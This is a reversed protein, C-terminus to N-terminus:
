SSVPETLSQILTAVNWSELWNVGRDALAKAMDPEVVDYIFWQWLGQWLIQPSEPLKKHNCILFEPQFSKALQEHHDDYRRIVWGVPWEGHDRTLRLLELDYSIIVVQDAIPAVYETVKQIVQKRGIRELCDEKIEVFAAAEAYQSMLSVFSKLHAIPTPLFQQGFRNPEHVSIKSLLAEEFAKAEGSLGSVRKLSADHLLMPEFDKSFQIDIEVGHAGAELAAQVGLLSNEPYLQPLGRHGVINM